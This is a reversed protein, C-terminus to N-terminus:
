VSTTNIPVDIVASYFPRKLIFQSTLGCRPPQPLLPSSPHHLRPKVRTLPKIDPLSHIPTPHQHPVSPPTLRRSHLIHKHLPPHAATNIPPRALPHPPAAPPEARPEGATGVNPAARWTEHDCWLTIPVESQSTQPPLLWGAQSGKRADRVQLHSRDQGLTRRLPRVTEAPEAREPRGAAGAPRARRLPPPELTDAARRHGRPLAQHACRDGCREGLSVALSEAGELHSAESVRGLLYFCLRSKLTQASLGHRPTAFM